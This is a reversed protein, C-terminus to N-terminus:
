QPRLAEDFFFFFISFLFSPVPFHTFYYYKQASCSPLRFQKLNHQLLMFLESKEVSKNLEPTCNFTKKEEEIVDILLLNSTKILSWNLNSRLLFGSNNNQSCLIISVYSSFFMFFCVSSKHQTLLPDWLSTNIWDKKIHFHM